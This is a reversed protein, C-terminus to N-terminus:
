YVASVARQAVSRSFGEFVLQDILSQRSFSSYDLYNRAMKRAQAEWDVSLSSVARQAVTSPYGEFELQEVLGSQSFATYNLYSEASGIANQLERSIPAASITVRPAPTTPPTTAAAAQAATTAPAAESRAPEAEADVTDDVSVTPVAILLSLVLTATGLYGLVLAWISKTRGAGSTRSARLGLHAFPVAIVCTVGLTVMGCLALVLATTAKPNRMRDSM